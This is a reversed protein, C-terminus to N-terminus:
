ADMGKNDHGTGQQSNSTQQQRVKRVKIVTMVAIFVAVFLVAVVVILILKEPDSKAEEMM